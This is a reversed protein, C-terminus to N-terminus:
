KKLSLMAKEFSNISTILAGYSETFKKFIESDMDVEHFANSIDPNDRVILDVVEDICKPANEFTIIKTVKWEKEM